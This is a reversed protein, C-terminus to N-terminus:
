AITTTTIWALLIFTIVRGTECTLLSPSLPILQGAWLCQAVIPLPCFEFGPLRVGYSSSRFGSRCQRDPELTAGPRYCSVRPRKLTEGDRPNPLVPMLLSTLSARLSVRVLDCLIDAWAPLPGGFGEPGSHAGSRLVSRCQPPSPWGASPLGAPLDAPGLVGATPGLGFDPRRM